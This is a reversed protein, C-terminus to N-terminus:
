SAYSQLLARSLREYEKKRKLYQQIEAAQTFSLNKREGGVYVFERGPYGYIKGNWYGGSIIRPRQPPALDQLRQRRENEGLDYFFKEKEWAQKEAEQIFNRAEFGLASLSDLIEELNPFDTRLLWVFNRDQITKTWALYALGTPPEKEYSFGLTRVEEVIKPVNSRVILAVPKVASFPTLRVEVERKEAESRDLFTACGGDQGLAITDAGCILQENYVCKTRKCAIKPM